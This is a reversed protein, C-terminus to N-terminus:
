DHRLSPDDPEIRPAAPDTSLNEELHGLPSAGPDPLVNPALRPL